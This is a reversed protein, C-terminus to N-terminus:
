VNFELELNSEKLAASLIERDYSDYIRYCRWIFESLSMVTQNHTFTRNTRYKLGHYECIDNYLPWIVNDILANSLLADAVDTVEIGIKSCIRKSMLNLLASTPHNVSYLLPLTIINEFFLDAFTISKHSLANERRFFEDKATDFADLYGANLFVQKDFLYNAEEETKYQLFANVLIRSNYDGVASFIRQGRAGLYCIDPHLGAFYIPSYEFVNGPKLTDIHEFSIEKFEESYTKCTVIVDSALLTQLFRERNHSFQMIELGCISIESNSINAITRALNPGQCNGLICVKQKQNKWVYFTGSAPRAPLYWHKKGEDSNFITASLNTEISSAINESAVNGISSAREAGLYYHEAWTIDDSGERGKSTETIVQIPLDETM